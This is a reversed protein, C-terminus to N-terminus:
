HNTSPMLITNDLAYICRFAYGFPVVTLYVVIAAIVEPSETFLAAIYSKASWIIILM